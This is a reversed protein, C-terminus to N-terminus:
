FYPFTHWVKYILTPVFCLAENDSLQYSIHRLVALVAEILDLCKSVLNSQPEHVKISVYKLPLDFNALCVAEASEDGGLATNYMDCLLSLGTINDNVANHDHSFLRALLEKSAHSEMQSQLLETLDKRTPGNENIWRTADKGCRNRKADLNTGSLPFTASSTSTPVASSKTITPRRLGNQTKALRSPAAEVPTDARSEPRNSGLPLKRRVGTLKSPAAKPVTAEVTPSESPEPPPSIARTKVASVVPKATAVPPASVAPRAAQVLPVVSSRSAPKLSNTQQMVYDFGACAILTPLMAQAGKRVDSNRDDLSSIIPLTWNSLDLSAPPEHEKFWDAIWHLLTGKQLPNATELGSTLGPVMSELGECANAIATLTTLAANRIPAKQDSLVTCVPLVFFRNQKEFPKGMGTAIRAVIDLALTQVAKNTDVVRAKLVQAM